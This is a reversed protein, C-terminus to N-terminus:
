ACLRCGLTIGGGARIPPKGDWATARLLQGAVCSLGDSARRAAEIRSTMSAREKKIFSESEECPSRRLPGRPARWLARAPARYFGAALAFRRKGPCKPRAAARNARGPLLGPLKNEISRRMTSRSKRPPPAERM